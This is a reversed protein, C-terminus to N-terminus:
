WTTWNDSWCIRLKNGCCDTRGALVLVSFIYYRSSISFISRDQSSQDIHFDGPGATIYICIDVTWTRGWNDLISSCWPNRNCYEMKQCAYAWASRFNIMCAILFLTRVEYNKFYQYILIAFVVSIIAGLSLMSIMFQDVNLVDQM